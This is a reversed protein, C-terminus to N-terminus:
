CALARHTNTHSRRRVMQSIFEPTESGHLQVVDLGVEDAIALVQEVTHNYFVGVFLPRGAAKICKTLRQSSECFWTSTHDLSPCSVPTKKDPVM